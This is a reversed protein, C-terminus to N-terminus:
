AGLSTNISAIANEVHIADIHQSSSVNGIRSGLVQEQAGLSANVHAIADEEAQHTKSILEVMSTREDASSATTNSALDALQHRVRLEEGGLSANVERISESERAM